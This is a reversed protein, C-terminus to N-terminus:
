PVFNLAKTVCTGALNQGSCLMVNVSISNGTPDYNLQGPSVNLVYSDEDPTLDEQVTGVVCGTYEKFTNSTHTFATGLTNDNGLIQISQWILGGTNKVYFKFAFQPLCKELKTYSLSFDAAPTPTPQPTFVPLGAQNGTLTAYQGWLWCFAGPSNPNKVYFTDNDLNRGTVEVTQGAMITTVAPFFAFPGKRCNTNQSVTMFVGALTPTLTITPTLTMTPTVTETPPVTNTNTPIIPASANMTAAVATQAFQAIAVQAAVTANVDPTAVNGVPINCALMALILAGGPLWRLVTKIKM